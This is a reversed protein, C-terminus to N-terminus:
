RWSCPRSRGRPRDARTTPPWSTPSASWPSTTSPRSAASRRHPRRRRRRLRRPRAARARGPVSGGALAVTGAAPRELATGSRAEELRILKSQANVVTVANEQGEQHHPERVDGGAQRRRKVVLKFQVRRSPTARRGTPRGRRHHRQRGTAPRSPARRPLAVRRPTAPAPRSSPGHGGRHPRRRGDGGVRVVYANGGGNMFYGYVAHGLYSGEVFDGFTTTFQTWNRSSRRPTSRVPPPWGSSPPSRPASARSPRSGSDVEEVYVGPSLYQPM